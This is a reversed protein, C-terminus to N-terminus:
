SAKTEFAANAAIAIGIAPAGASPMTLVARTGGGPRETLRLTGSQGRMATAATHLGLGTGPGAASGRGGPQLVREREHAPIGRGDDDVLITVSSGRREAAIAVRAGGAHTRANALLNAVATATARPHGLVRVAGLQADIVGGALRHALVVPQLVDTLTFEQIQEHNDTDLTEQLRVLEAAMLEHLRSPDSGAREPSQSLLRSAGMVAIVASRADHVRERHLQRVQALQEHVDVLAHALDASKRSDAHHADRLEVAAAATVVAAAILQLGPALSFTAPLALISHAKVLECGAMLVMAVAALSLAPRAQTNAQRWAALALALWAGAAICEGVLWVLPTDMPLMAAMARRDTLASATLAWGVLTVIALPLPRATRRSPRSGIVILVLVPLVLSLRGAPATAALESPKQMLPGVLAVVPLAAGLAILAAAAHAAQREGTLRWRAVWLMGAILFLGTAIARAVQPVQLNVTAPLRPAQWVLVSWAALAITLLVAVLWANKTCGLARAGKRTAAQVGLVM